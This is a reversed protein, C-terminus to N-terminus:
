SAEKISNKLDEAMVQGWLAHGKQSLHINDHFLALTEEISLTPLRDKLYTVQLGYQTLLSKLISDSEELGLLQKQSPSIYILHTKNQNKLYVDMEKLHQVAIELVLKKEDAPLQNFHNGPTKKNHMQYIFYHALEELAFRPKKTWFPQGGIRMLGRSFDGEPFTSVIIQAPHFKMQKVLAYVNDVGWANVGGNGALIGPLNKTAIHSFLSTNTIYSGGYTVSDGLFLIKNQVQSPAWDEEARLALNNLKVICNKNRAVIQNPMPRYGYIPHAEYIVTKGLGFSSALKELLFLAGLGILASLFLLTTKPFREFLSPHKM